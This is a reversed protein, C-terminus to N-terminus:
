VGYSVYRMLYFLVCTTSRSVGRQCHVLVSGHCLGSSIFSVISDAHSLLDSTSADYVPVRKYTFARSSEFFNAVGSQAHYFYFTRWTCVNGSCYLSAIHPAGYVLSDATAPLVVSVKVGAEKEPTVNLIHSIGWRELKSRSKADSKGGLYLGHRKRGVAAGDVAYILSM